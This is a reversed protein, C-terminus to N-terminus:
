LETQVMRQMNESVGSVKQYQQAGRMVLVQTAFSALLAVTNLSAIIMSWVSNSQAILDLLTAFGVSGTNPFGATLYGIWGILAFQCVVYSFPVDHVKCATYLKDFCVSITLYGTILAFIVSFIISKVYGHTKLGSISCCALVDLASQVVALIVGVLATNICPRVSHPIDGELNVYLFSVHPPWNPTRLADAPSERLQQQRQRRLLSAERSRHVITIMSLNALALFPIPHFEKAQLSPTL